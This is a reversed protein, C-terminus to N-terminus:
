LLFPKEWLFMTHYASKLYLIQIVQFQRFVGAGGRSGEYRKEEPNRRCVTRIVQRGNAGEGMPFEWSSRRRDYANLAM